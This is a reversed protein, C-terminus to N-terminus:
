LECRWKLVCVPHEGSLSVKVITEAVRASRGITDRYSVFIPFSQMCIVFVVDNWVDLVDMNVKVMSIISPYMIWIICQRTSDQLLKSNRHGIKLM